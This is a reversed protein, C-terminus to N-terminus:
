HQQREVPEFSEDCWHKNVHVSYIPRLAGNEFAFYFAGERASDEDLEGVAILMNSNLNFRLGWYDTQAASQFDHADLMSGGITHFGSPAFVKGSLADVIAFSVCSIGCGWGVITYHGAFNPGQALGKTLVTKYTKALANSRVDLPAIRPIDVPPVSYREFTPAKADELDQKTIPYCGDAAFLAVSQLLGVLLVVLRLVRTMIIADNAFKPTREHSLESM